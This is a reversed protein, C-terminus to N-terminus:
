GTVSVKAPRLVREGLMYGPEFVAAVKNAELGEVAQHLMAEHREPEFVDGQNVVMPEVGLEGLRKMLEARVLTMGELLAAASTKELDVKLAKDFLDLVPLLPKMAEMLQYKRAEEVATASRKVYNQYDAAVRLLRTKVDDLESQVVRLQDEGVPTEGADGMPEVMGNSNEGSPHINRDDGNTNNM